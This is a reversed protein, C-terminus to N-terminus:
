TKRKPQKWERYSARRASMEHLQCNQYRQKVKAILVQSEWGKVGTEEGSLAQENVRACGRKAQRLLERFLHPFFGHGRWEQMKRAVLVLVGHIVISLIAALTHHVTIRWFWTTTTTTQPGSIKKPRQRECTSLKAPQLRKRLACM